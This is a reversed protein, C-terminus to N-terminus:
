RSGPRGRQANRRAWAELGGLGAGLGMGLLAFGLAPLGGSFLLLGLGLNVGFGVLAGLALPVLLPLSGGPHAGGPRAPLPYRGAALGWRVRVVEWLMAFTDRLPRVKSEPSYYWDIPVEAVRLDMRRALMLLEVDFGFGYVRQLPFLALASERTFGKFGCQTDRIGPLGALRVVLNFVRGMLHRHWPEGIRRAGPAERSGLSLDYGRLLPELLRPLHEVPMSLDADCLFRYLGRAELMGRGVAWGKGRHPLRLLRVGPRERAFSAVLSATADTSGDDAVVVEWTHGWSALFSSVRQLTPLIRGAENYAPIVVSLFPSERAM